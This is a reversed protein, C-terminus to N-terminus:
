TIICCKNRWAHALFPSRSQEFCWHFQELSKTAYRYRRGIKLLSFQKRVHKPFNQIPNWILIKLISRYYLKLLIGLGQLVHNSGGGGGWEKWFLLFILFDHPFAVKNCQTNQIAEHKTDWLMEGIESIRFYFLQFQFYCSM